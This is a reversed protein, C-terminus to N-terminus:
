VVSKRDLSNDRGIQAERFPRPVKGFPQMRRQGKDFLAPDPIVITRFRKRDDAIDFIM